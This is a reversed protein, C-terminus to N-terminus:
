NYIRRYWRGDEMAQILIKDRTSGINMIPSFRRLIRFTIFVRLPVLNINNNDSFPNQNLACEMWEEYQVILLWLAEARGQYNDQEQEKCIGKCLIDLKEFASLILNKNKDENQPPSVRLISLVSVLSAGDAYWTFGPNKLSIRISNLVFVGAKSYSKVILCGLLYHVLLFETPKKPFDEDFNSILKKISSKYCDDQAEILSVWKIVRESWQHLIQSEDNDQSQTAGKFNHCHSHCYISSEFERSVRSLAWAEEVVNLGSM